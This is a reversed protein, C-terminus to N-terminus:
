DCVQTISEFNPSQSSIHEFSTPAGIDLKTIQGKKAPHQSRGNISNASSSSFASDNLCTGAQSLLHPGANPLDEVKTLVKAGIHGVHVFSTPPSITPREGKQIAQCIVPNGGGKKVGAVVGVDQMDTFNLGKGAGAHEVHKFNSPSGIIDRKTIAVDKRRLRSQPQPSNRTGNSDLQPEQGQSKTVAESTEGSKRKEEELQSKLTANEQTLKENAETLEKLKADRDELCQQLQIIKLDREDEVVLSKVELLSQENEM